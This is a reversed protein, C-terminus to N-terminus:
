CKVSWREEVTNTLIPEVLSEEHILHSKYFQFGENPQPLFILSPKQKGLATRVTNSLLM